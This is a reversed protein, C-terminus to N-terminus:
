LEDTFRVQIDGVGCELKMSYLANNNIKTEASLGSYTHSGVTVSSIGCEIDYNYDTQSGSLELRVNGVETEVEIDGMCAAPTSLSGVGTDIELHSAIIGSLQCVATGTDIKVEELPYDAPVFITVQPAGSQTKPEKRKIKLTEKDMACTTRNLEDQIPCHDRFCRLFLLGPHKGSDIDIELERVNTFETANQTAPSSAASLSSGPDGSSAAHHTEPHHRRSLSDSVADPIIDEVEDWLEHAASHGWSSLHYRIRPLLQKFNWPIGPLSGGMSAAASTIGIGSVLIVLGTITFFKILKKM